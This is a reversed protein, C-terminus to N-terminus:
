IQIFGDISPIGFCTYGHYDFSEIKTNKIEYAVDVGQVSQCHSCVIIASFQNMRHLQNIKNLVLVSNKYDLYNLPEDFLYLFCSNERGILNGFFSILHQQGLSLKSIRKKLLKSASDCDLHSILQNVELYSSIYNALKLNEPLNALGYDFPLSLYEKITMSQDFFMQQPVYCIKHRVEGLTKVTYKDLYTLKGSIRIDKQYEINGSLIDFLTTKGSGNVGRFFYLKGSGILFSIDEILLKNNRIITLNEARIINNM